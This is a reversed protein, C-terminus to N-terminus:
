IIDYTRIIVNESTTALFNGDYNFAMEKVNSKHANIVCQMKGSVLDYLKVEGKGTNGAHAFYCNTLGPTMAFKAESNSLDITFLKHMNTCNYVDVKDQVVVILRKKNLKVGSIASGFSIEMRSTQSNTDWITLRRPVFIARDHKGVVAIINTNYLM